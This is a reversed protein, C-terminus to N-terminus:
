PSCQRVWTERKKLSRTFPRTASMFLLTLLGTLKTLVTRGRQVLQLTKPSPKGQERSPRRSLVSTFCLLSLSQFAVSALCTHATHSSGRGSPSQTFIVSTLSILAGFPFLSLIFPGAEHKHRRTRQADYQKGRKLFSRCLLM